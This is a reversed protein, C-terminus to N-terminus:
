ARPTRYGHFRVTRLEKFGLRRYLRLAAVNDVSVHLFPREGREQVQGALTRVLLEALSRGRARPSTAVASIETWGPPRLREGAMAVLEGDERLGLYTGLEITRSWFPGPRAEHVLRMMDPVDRAGLRVVQHQGPDAAAVTDAVLLLGDMRFAPEWDPPPTVPLSFLDAFGGEGLLARLDAWDRPSPEVPVASFTAVGPQYAVARGHSRALHAHVQRLSQGVPDSLVDQDPM